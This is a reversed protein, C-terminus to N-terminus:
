KAVMAASYCKNMSLEWELLCFINFAVSIVIHFFYMCCQYTLIKLIRDVNKSM